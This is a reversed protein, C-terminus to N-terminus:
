SPNTTPECSECEDEKLQINLRANDISTVPLTVDVPHVGNTVNVEELNFKYKHLIP